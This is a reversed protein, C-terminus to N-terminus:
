IKPRLSPAQSATEAPPAGTGGSREYVFKGADMTSIGYWVYGTESEYNMTKSRVINAYRKLASFYPDSTVGEFLSNEYNERIAYAFLDAVQIGPTIASDVFLPSPVIHRMARGADSRAMFAEFCRSFKKNSGPDQGDFIPIAWHNPHEREMFRDVREFLWRFHTQLFEPGEYLEKDPREMVIAFVSLDFDRLLEFVSDVYERKSTVRTVSRRDLFTV